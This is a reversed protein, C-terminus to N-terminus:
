DHRVGFDSSDRENGKLCIMLAMRHHLLSM